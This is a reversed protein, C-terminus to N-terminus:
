RNNRCNTRPKASYWKDMLRSWLINRVKGTNQFLSTPRQVKNQPLKVITRNTYERNKKNLKRNDNHNLSRDQKEGFESKITKLGM